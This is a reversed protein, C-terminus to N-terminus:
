KTYSGFRPYNNLEQNWQVSVSVSFEYIRSKEVLGLLIDWMNAEQTHFTEYRGTNRVSVVCSFKQNIGEEGFYDWQPNESLWQFFRQRDEATHKNSHDRTRKEEKQKHMRDMFAKRGKEIDGGGLKFYEEEEKERRKKAAEERIRQMEAEKALREEEKRKETQERCYEQAAKFRKWVMKTIVGDEYLDPDFDNQAAAIAVALWDKQQSRVFSDHPVGITIGGEYTIFSVHDEQPPICLFTGNTRGHNGCGESDRNREKQLFARFINDSPADPSTLM